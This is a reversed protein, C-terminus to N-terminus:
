RAIERLSAAAAVIENRQPTFNAEAACGALEAIRTETQIVAILCRRPEGREPAAFEFRAAAYPGITTREVPTMAGATVRAAMRKGLADAATVLDAVKGDRGVLVLTTGDANRARIQLNGARVPATNPVWASSLTMEFRGDKSVWRGDVPVSPPETVLPAPTYGAAVMCGNFAERRDIGNFIVDLLIVTGAQAATPASQTYAQHQNQAEANAKCRASDRDFQAPTFDPKTWAAPGCGTALLAVLAWRVPGARAIAIPM